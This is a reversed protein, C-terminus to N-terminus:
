SERDLGMFVTHRIVFGGEDLFRLLAIM